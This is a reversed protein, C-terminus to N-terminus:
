LRPTSMRLMREAHLERQERAAQQEYRASLQARSYHNARRGWTVLLLGLRLAAQDVLSM